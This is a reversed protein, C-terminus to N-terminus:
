GNYLLSKSTRFFRTIDEDKMNVFLVSKKEKILSDKTIDERDDKVDLGDSKKNM